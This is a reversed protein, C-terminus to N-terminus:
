VIEIILVTNLIQLIRFMKKCYQLKNAYKQVVNETKNLIHDTVFGAETALTRHEVQLCTRYTPCGSIPSL